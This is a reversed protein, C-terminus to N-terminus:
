LRSSNNHIFGIEYQVDIKQEDCFGANVELVYRAPQMSPIPDRSYPITHKAIHVIRHQENIFIIDLPIMTNKMWFTQQGEVNFIFLMGENNEMKNRYMLGRNIEEPTDAVEVMIYKVTDSNQPRIFYLTGENKFKPGSRERESM